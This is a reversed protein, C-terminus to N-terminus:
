QGEGSGSGSTLSRQHIRLVRALDDAFTKNAPDLASAIRLESLAESTQGLNVLTLGLRHHVEPSQLNADLAQKLLTAAAAFDGKIELDAAQKLVPNNADSNAAQVPPKRSSNNEATNIM